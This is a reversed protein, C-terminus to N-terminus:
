PSSRWNWTVVAGGGLIPRRRAKTSQEYHLNVHERLKLDSRGKATLSAKAAGDGAERGGLAHNTQHLSPPVLNETGM